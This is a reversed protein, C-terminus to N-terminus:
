RSQISSLDWILSEKLLPAPPNVPNSFGVEERSSPKLSSMKCSHRKTGKAPRFCIDIYINARKGKMFICDMLPDTLATFIYDAVLIGLPM